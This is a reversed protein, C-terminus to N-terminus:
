GLYEDAGGIGTHPSGDESTPLPFWKPHVPCDPASIPIKPIIDLTISVAWTECSKKLAPGSKTNKFKKM